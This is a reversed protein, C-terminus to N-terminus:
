SREGLPLAAAALLLDRAVHEEGFLRARLYNPLFGFQGEALDALFEACAPTREGLLLLGRVLLLSKGEQRSGGGWGERERPQM